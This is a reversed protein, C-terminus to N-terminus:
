SSTLVARNRGARKAEYLRSDATTILTASSVVEPENCRAAGISASVNLTDGDPLAIQIEEIGRRLREALGALQAEDISEVLVVFEEGGFRAALDRSRTMESLRHGVARLVDDGVAHGHVDNVSKFHDLDIILLAGSETSRNVMGGSNALQELATDFTGRNPLGTLADTSAKKRLEANRNSLEELERNGRVMAEHAEMTLSQMRTTAELLLESFASAQPFSFQLLEAVENVSAESEVLMEITQPEDLDLDEKTQSLLAEMSVGSDPGCLAEEALLGIRLSRTLNNSSEDIPASRGEIAELLSAPLGWPRILTTTVDDSTFGLYEREGKLTPWRGFEAVMAKAVDPAKMALVIRGIGTLLGCTFAEDTFRREVLGAARRSLAGNVVMRRRIESTDFANAQDPVLMRISTTLALLRVSRLGLTTVAREISKIESVPSYLSSNAMRILQVSLAVDVEILKALEEIQVDPDDSKRIVELVTLPPSPLSESDLFLTELDLSEMSSNIMQTM